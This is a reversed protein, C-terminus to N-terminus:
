RIVEVFKNGFASELDSHLKELAEEQTRISVNDWDCMQMNDGDIIINSLVWDGHAYPQTNKINDLCFNYIRKIFEDTHPLTSAPIGPLAITDIWVGLENEGRDVLYGPAVTSLADAHSVVWAFSKDFWYKRYLGNVLRYVARNKDRTAKILEM